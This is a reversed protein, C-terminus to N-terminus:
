QGQLPPVPPRNAPARQQPQQQQQQQAQGLQALDVGNILTQGAETLQIRYRMVPNAADKGSPKGLAQLIALIAVAPSQQAEPRQVVAQFTPVLGHIELDVTGVAPVAGGGPRVALSGAARSALSPTKLQLTKIALRLDSQELAAKFEAALADDNPATPMPAGTQAAKFTQELQQGAAAGITKFLAKLPFNAVSLDLRVARPDLEPTAQFLPTILGDHGYRLGIESRDGDTPAFRTGLSLRDIRVQEAGLEDVARVDNLTLDFAMVGFATFMETYLAEIAAGVEAPDANEAGMAQNARRTLAAFRVMDMDKLSSTSRLGGMRFREGGDPGVAEVKGVHFLAAINYTDTAGEKTSDVQVKLEDMHLRSKEGPVTATVDRFAYVADTILALERDMIGEVTHDGIVIDAAFPENAEGVASFRWRDPFRAVMRLRKDDLPMVRATVDGVVLGQGAGDSVSFGPLTLVYANDVIDVKAPATLRPRMEQDAQMQAQVTWAAFVQQVEELIAQREEETPQQAPAATAVLLALGLAGLRSLMKM